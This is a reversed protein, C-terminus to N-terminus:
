IDLHFIVNGTTEEVGTQYFGMRGVNKLALNDPHIKVMLREVGSLRCILRAADVTFSLFAKGRYKEDILVGFSPIEFGADWGRLMFMGILKSQWFVGAYVDAECATLIETMAAEDSGFAYFFKLYEPPQASLFAAASAADALELSRISLSKKQLINM